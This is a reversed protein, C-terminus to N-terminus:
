KGTAAHRDLEGIVACRVMYANDQTLFGGTISWAASSRHKIALALVQKRLLYEFEQNERQISTAAVPSHSGVYRESTSPRWCQCITPLPEPWVM